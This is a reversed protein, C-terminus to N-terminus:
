SGAAANWGAELVKRAPFQRKDEIVEVFSLVSEANVKFHGAFLTSVQNSKNLSSQPVMM